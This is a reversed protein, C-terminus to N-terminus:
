NLGILHGSDRRLTWTSRTMAGHSGAQADPTSATTSQSGRDVRQHGTLLLVGREEQPIATDGDLAAKVPYWGCQGVERHSPDALPGLTAKPAEERGLSLSKPPSIGSNNSPCEYWYYHCCQSLITSLDRSGPGM